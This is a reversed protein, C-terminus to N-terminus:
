TACSRRCGISRPFAAWQRNVGAARALARGPYDGLRGRTHEPGSGRDANGEPVGQGPARASGQSIRAREAARLLREPDLQDRRAGKAGSAAVEQAARELSLEIGLQAAAARHARAARALEARDAASEALEVIAVADAISVVIGRALEAEQFAM